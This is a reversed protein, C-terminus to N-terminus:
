KTAEKLISMVRGYMASGREDTYGTEHTFTKVEVPIKMPMQVGLMVNATAQEMCRRLINEHVVADDVHCYIMISDHLTCVLEISNHQALLKVAERLIVAGNAQMPFNQLRTFKSNQDAFQTWGDRARIWGKRAFMVEEDVFRWYVRFVRKHWRLIDVATRMCEEFDTNAGPPQDLFIRKGLALAGMGYGVGLQTSKYAQRQTPHSKKTADQPVADAMKALALYVDGTLLADRLELDGSLAAALYIEQQSWDAVILVHDKEPRVMHRLWPPYNM